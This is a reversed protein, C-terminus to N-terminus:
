LKHDKPSLWTFSLKEPLSSALKDVAKVGKVMAHKVNKVDVLHKYPHEFITSTVTIVDKGDGFELIRSFVYNAQPHTLINDSIQHVQMSIRGACFNM